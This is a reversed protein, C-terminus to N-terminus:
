GMPSDVIAASEGGPAGYDVCYHSSDASFKRYARTTQSRVPPRPHHSDPNTPASSIAVAFDKRPTTDSAAAVALLETTAAAALMDLHPTAAARVHGLRPTAAAALMDLRPTTAIGLDDPLTARSAPTHPKPSTAFSTDANSQRPSYPHPRMSPPRPMVPTTTVELNLNYVPDATVPASPSPCPYIQASSPGAADPATKFPAMAMSITPTAGLQTYTATLPAPTWPYVTPSPAGTTAEDAAIALPPCTSAPETPYNSASGPHSSSSRTVIHDLRLYRAYEPPPRLSPSPFPETSENFTARQNESEWAGGELRLRKAAQQSPERCAEERDDGDNEWHRKLDLPGVSMSVSPREAGPEVVPVAAPRDLARQDMEEEPETQAASPVDRRPYVSTSPDMANELLNVDDSCNGRREEEAEEDDEDSEEDEDEMGNVDLEDTDTGEDEEIAEAGMEETDTDEDGEEFQYDRRVEDSDDSECRTEMYDDEGEESESDPPLAGYADILADISYFTINSVFAIRRHEKSQM